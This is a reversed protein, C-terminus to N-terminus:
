LFVFDDEPIYVSEISEVGQMSGRMEELREKLAQIREHDEELGIM